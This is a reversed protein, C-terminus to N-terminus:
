FFCALLLNRAIADAIDETDWLHKQNNVASPRAILVHVNVFYYNLLVQNWAEVLARGNTWANEQSSNIVTKHVKSNFIFIFSFTNSNPPISSQFHPVSPKNEPELQFRSM